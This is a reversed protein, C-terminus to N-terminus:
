PANMLERRVPVPVLCIQSPWAITGQPRQPRGPYWLAASLQTALSADPTTSPHPSATACTQPCTGEDGQGTSRHTADAWVNGQLGEHNDTNRRQPSQDTQMAYPSSPAQCGTSHQMLDGFPVVCVIASTRPRSVHMSLCSLFPYQGLNFCAMILLSLAWAFACMGPHSGPWCMAEQLPVFQAPPRCGSTSRDHISTEPPHRM